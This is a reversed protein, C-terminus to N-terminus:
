RVSIRLLEDVSEVASQNARIVGCTKCPCDDWNTQLNKELDAIKKEAKILAASKAM